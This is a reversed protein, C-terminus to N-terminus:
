SLCPVPERRNIGVRLSLWKPCIVLPVDASFRFIKTECPLVSAVRWEIITGGHWAEASQSAHLYLRGGVSADAEETSIGPWDGTEFADSLDDGLPVLLGSTIPKLMQGPPCVLHLDTPM